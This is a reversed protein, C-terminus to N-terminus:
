QLYGEQKTVEFYDYAVGNITMRRGHLNLVIGANSSTVNYSAVSQANVYSSDYVLDVMCCSTGPADKRIVIQARVDATTSTCFLRRVVSGGSSNTFGFVYVHGNEIVLDDSSVSLDIYEATSPLSLLCPQVRGNGDVYVPTAQDGVSSGYPVSVTNYTTAYIAGTPETVTANKVAFTFGYDKNICQMTVPSKCWSPYKAIFHYIDSSDKWYGFEIRSQTPGFSYVEMTPGSTNRCHFTFVWTSPLHGVDGQGQLMITTSSGSSGRYPSTGIEQYQVSAGAAGSQLTIYDRVRYAGGVTMSSPTCAQIRGNADVYTPTTSDGVSGVPLTPIVRNGGVDPTAIVTDVNDPTDGSLRINSYHGNGAALRIMGRDSVGDTGTLNGVIVISGKNSDKYFKATPIIKPQYNGATDGSVGTVNYTTGNLAVSHSVNGANGSINVPLTENDKVKTATIADNDIDSTGVTAKFALAKLASVLNKFKQAFAKLTTSSGLDYGTSTGDPTASVSSGDGNPSLFEKWEASATLAKNAGASGEFSIASPVMYGKKGNYEAKAVVLKDASSVRWSEDGLSGDNNLRGHPHNGYAATFATEGLELNSTGAGINSRAQTKQAATLSQADDYRVYRDNTLNSDKTPISPKNDVGSWPVSDASGATSAYDANDANTAHDANTATDATLSKKATVDFGFTVDLDSQHTGANLEASDGVANTNGFFTWKGANGGIVYFVYNASTNYHSGSDLVYTFKGSSDKFTLVKPKTTGFMTVFDDNAGLITPTVASHNQSVEIRVLGLMGLVNNAVALDITRMEGSSPNETSAFKMYRGTGSALSWNGADEPMTVHLETSGITGVKSKMGWALTPNNDIVTQHSQLATDAKGLSTQVASALDDKPIGSAPKDYKATWATKQEPTVHIGGNDVHANLTTHDARLNTVDQSTVGSDIAAKEEATFSSNNLTYEYGWSALGDRYKYRQVKDDITSQPNRIEIYVYDNNTPYGTPWTRSNLASAIQVETAPYTLGLDALSFNGLFTATNTAVSSNVYDAVAKSSGYETTSTPDISQVKNSVAERSDDTPHRHDGRAWQSSSGASATGDKLPTATSATPVSINVAKDTVVQETGNVKVKEIVNVQAGSEVGALKAKESDTYNNDTHVYDADQVLNQPKNKIYDVKSSDAQNWDSQVQPKGDANVTYVDHGDAATSKEVRCNDGQVVETRASAEATQARSTESSIADSLASDALSRSQSEAAIKADLEDTINCETWHEANWEEPEDIVVASKYLRGENMVYTGEVPYAQDPDYDLAFNRDRLQDQSDVYGKTVATDIMPMVINMYSAVVNGDRDQVIYDLPTDAPVFCKWAGDSDLQCPNHLLVSSGAEAYIQAKDTTGHVYVTVSGGSYPVGSFDVFQKPVPVLYFM